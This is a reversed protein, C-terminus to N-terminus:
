PHVLSEARPVAISVRIHTSTGISATCLGGQTCVDLPLTVVYITKPVAVGRWAVGEKVIQSKSTKKKKKKKLVFPSKLFVSNRPFLVGAEWKNLFSDEAGM